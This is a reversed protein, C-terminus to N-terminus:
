AKLKACYPGLDPEFRPDEILREFHGLAAPFEDEVAALCARKSLHELKEEQMRERSFLAVECAFCIDALTVDAGCLYPQGGSLAQEMGRLYNTLGTLAQDYIAETVERRGLALLYIQSDRAFVLSVDLFADIRAAEFPTAGYLGCDPGIRAVARLISNSEFVGTQGDPSFAVPVTGFPNANLFAPTKYLEGSFGTRGQIAFRARDPDDEALPRADFDWLWGALERPPVGRTDIDVGNIRAAITAKMLRPNPLYTFIRLDM